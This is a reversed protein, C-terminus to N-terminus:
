RASADDSHVLAMGRRIWLTDLTVIAMMGVFYALMDCWAFKTGLVISVLKLPFNGQRWRLPIGTLQFSEVCIVFIAICIARNRVSQAPWLFGLTVYFIVAYLADGLYKNILVSDFDISRSLVGLIFM